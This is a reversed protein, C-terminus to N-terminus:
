LNRENNWRSELKRRNREEKTGFRTRIRQDARRYYTGRKVIVGTKKGSALLDGYKKIQYKNIMIALENLLPFDGNEKIFNDKFKTLSIICTDKYKEFYYNLKFELM